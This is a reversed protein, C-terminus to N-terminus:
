SGSLTGVNEVGTVNSPPARSPNNIQSARRRERWRIIEVIVSAGSMAVGFGAFTSLIISIVPQM